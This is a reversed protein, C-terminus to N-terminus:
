PPCAPIPAPAANQALDSGVFEVIEAISRRQRFRRNYVIEDGIARVLLNRPMGRGSWPPRPVQDLKGGM